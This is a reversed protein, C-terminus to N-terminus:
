FKMKELSNRVKILFLEFSGSCNLLLTAELFGWCVTKMSVSAKMHTVCPMVVLLM